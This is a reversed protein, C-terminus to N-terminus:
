TRRGSDVRLGTTALPSECNCPRHAFYEGGGPAPVNFPHTWPEFPTDRIVSFIRSLAFNYDRLAIRDKPNKRLESTASEAGALYFGTAREPHSAKLQQGAAIQQEARQLQPSTGYQAGLMPSTERVTALPACGSLTAVMAIVVIHTKSRRVQAATVVVAIV